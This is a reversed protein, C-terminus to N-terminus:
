APVQRARHKEAASLPPMDALCQKCTVLSRGTTWNSRRLQKGCPTLDGPLDAPYFPNFHSMM